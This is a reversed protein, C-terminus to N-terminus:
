MRSLRACSSHSTTSAFKELMLSPSTSIDGIVSLLAEGSIQLADVYQRQEHDLNTEALLSATGIVGNLPTRLEHNMNAMFESKLRSAEVARAHAAVLAKEADTRDTIDQATGIMRLLMGDGDVVIEGRSELVRISGDTLVTRCVWSFPEHTALATEVVADLLARDDPHVLERVMVLTTVTGPEVGFIRHLEDSWELRDAVPDWEFSGIKGVSQADVLQRRQRKLLEERQKRETVDRMLALHYGPAIHATATYEVTISANDDRLLEYEGDHHGACLFSAWDSVLEKSLAPPIFEDISRGALGDSDVGLLQCAAPNAAVYHRDNGFIVM